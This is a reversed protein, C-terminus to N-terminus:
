KGPETQVAAERRLLQAILWDAPYVDDPFGAAAGIKEDAQALWRDTKERWQRAEEAHGLRAHALALFAWSLAQGSWDPQAELSERLRDAAPEPRGARYYATGLAHLSWAPPPQNPGKLKAWQVLQGPTAGAQPGLVCVRALDLGVGADKTRGYHEILQACARRYGDEDGTLLLLSAYELWVHDEPPRSDTVRAYDAVAAGFERRSAHLRGRAIWLHGDGPRRDSVRAFVADTRALEACLRSGPSLHYDTGPGDPLLELAGAFDDAARDWEGLAAHARGRAARDPWHAPDAAIVADLLRIGEAWQGRRLCEGAERRQPVDILGRAERFLVQFELWDVPQGGPFGAGDRDQATRALWQSARELGGQAEDDQGLRHQILARLVWNQFHGTWDRRLSEEVRGSARDLQAARYQVAALVHLAWAARPRDEVMDEAWRLAAPDDRPQPVLAWTRALMYGTFPDPSSGFREVMRGYTQRYGDADGALLQACALEFWDAPPCKEILTAYAARARDWRGLRSYARGREIWLRADEPRQRTAAAFAEDWRMLEAYARARESDTAEDAPLLEIARLFDAAAQDWRGQRAFLRGRELRLAADAPRLDIARTFDAEARDHQGREAYYRGRATWVSADAPRVQTARTFQAEAEDWQQRAAHFRGRAIWLRPDDPRLEVAKAFDAAAEDWRGLAAHARGRAVWVKPHDSGRPGRVAAAAERYLIQLRAWEWWRPLPPADVTEQSGTGLQRDLWEDVHDLSKRADEDQGLRHQVLALAPWNLIEAAGWRSGAAMSARLSKAAEGVEGARYQALGLDHLSWPATPDDDVAPRALRLLRAPDAVADPALSCALATVSGSGADPSEGFRELMRACTQRYGPTDGALLRLAAEPEWLNADEDPPQLRTQEFYDPAAEQWLGLRLYLNAGEARALANDPRLAVARRLADAAEAWHGQEAQRRGASMLRNAENLRRADDEAQGRLADADARAQREKEAAAEERRAMLHFRYALGASGAAVVVLLLAVAGSLGAVAPNHRCWRWGREVRGAPRAAVAEGRLFRRLDDALERATGYRRRPEKHLCKLCVTELDRPVKDNVRRPPRAEEHLVQHLIMTKSGRFPLGGTLLEYLVVGLSYVDSRRDVHHGRGSAQEPSMYAPTGVVQGDLTLTVEAEDRLALGFDMLLPRAMEGPGGEGPGSGPLADRGADRRYEVMVNAPKVDRHVLGMGHAYDLADALHAVLEAAQRFTLPRVQLLDRLTVGHIFDAVLVPLGELTTVEHVSVIGPHRLQAAARAERYFREAGEVSSLLGAHPIKLAVLRDLETDRAKWVAGFAGLGVRELLQFKGLRRMPTTTNTLDTDALRFTSGCAPCLVADTARDGLQVPNHCHPCRVKPGTRRGSDFEVATSGLPLESPPSPSSGGAQSDPRAAGDDERPEDGNM